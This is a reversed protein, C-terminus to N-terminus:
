TLSNDINNVSYSVLSAHIIMFICEKTPLLTSVPVFIIFLPIICEVFSTSINIDNQKRQLEFLNHNVLWSYRNRTSYSEMGCKM